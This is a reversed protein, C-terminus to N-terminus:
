NKLAKELVVFELGKVLPIGFRPDTPFPRKENTVHYGRKVYWDILEKRLTIVTMEIREARWESKAFDEAFKLISSGVGRSQTAVNTTLMGLYVSTSDKRELHVCAELTTAERILVLSGESEILASVRETDIRLGGLLHAETTWGRLGSEGRYAGNVLEVLSGVDASNALRYTANVTSLKLIM